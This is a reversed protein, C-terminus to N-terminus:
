ISRTSLRNKNHTLRNWAGCDKCQRRAYATVNTRHWGAELLNKSGCRYCGPEGTWQTINPFNKIWPGLYDFLNETIVVDMKCYKRMRAWAVPDNRLIGGWLDEGAHGIKQGIGFLKCLYDLKHSMYRGRRSARYLDVSIFPSPPTMGAEMFAGMIIPIDFSNGNFTLLIDTENLLDWTAKLMGKTGLEDESFVQATKKNYDKWGVMILRSPKTIQHINIRQEGTRFLTAEAYSTEIDLTTIRPMNGVVPQKVKSIRPALTIKLRNDRAM